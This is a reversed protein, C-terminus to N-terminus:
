AIRLELLVLKGESAVSAALLAIMGLLAGGSTEIAEVRELETRGLEEIIMDERGLVAEVVVDVCNVGPGDTIGVKKSGGVSSGAGEHAASGASDHSFVPSWDTHELLM